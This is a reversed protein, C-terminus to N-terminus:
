ERADVHLPKENGKATVRVAAEAGRLSFATASAAKLMAGNGEVWDPDVVVFFGDDSRVIGTRGFAYTQHGFVIVRVGLAEAARMVKAIKADDDQWYRRKVLSKKGLIAESAFDNEALAGAARRFSKKTLYGSHCFFANGVFAGVPLEGLWALLSRRHAADLGASEASREFEDTAAGPAALLEAEHNGLLVIVKGGAREAQGQLKRFLKLVQVSEEGKNIMDGVVVLIANGGQWNARTDVLGGAVLVTKVKDYHGHVDSLAYLAGYRRLEEHPIVEWARTTAQPREFLPLGDDGVAEVAALCRRGTAAPLPLALVVCLLLSLWSKVWGTGM